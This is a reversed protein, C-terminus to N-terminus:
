AKEADDETPVLRMRRAREVADARSVVKLKRYIRKLHFKVTNETIFLQEAIKSLTHGTTLAELTRLEAKTLPEFPETRLTAPLADVEAVLDIAGAERAARALAGLVSWPVTGLLLRLGLVRMRAGAEAFREVAADPDGPNWLAAAAVLQQEIHQRPTLGLGAAQEVQQLGAEADGRYLALLASAIAADPHTQPLAALLRNAEAYNGLRAHLRAAHASFTCRMTFTSPLGGHVEARRRDLLELAAHAGDRLERAQAEAIVLLPWHELRPLVGRGMEFEALAAEADGREIAVLGEALAKNFGSFQPAEIGRGEALSRMRALHREATPLDGAVAATAALGNWGRIEELRDEFREAVEIARRYNREGLELDGAVLGTFGLASFLLPFTFRYHAMRSEPIREARAEADRSIRLAESGDGRMREATLLLGVAALNQEYNGDRLESRIASRLWQHLQEMRQNSMELGPEDAHLVAGILVPYRRLERDPIQNLRRQVGTGPRLVELFYRALLRSVGEYEEADLLQLAATAPDDRGLDAAHRLRIERADDGFEQLALSALPGALGEHCRYRTTHTWFTEQLLGQECLERATAEVSELSEDILEALMELSVGPCLVAGLLARRAGPIAMEAFHQRAFIALTRRSDGPSVGDSFQQLMTRMMIPWGHTRRHLQSVYESDGVGYLTALELSEEETLSLEEGTLVTVGVRSSVLPGDLAAFRRGLVLLHLLESRELLRALATDLEGSTLQQYDDLVLVTPRTLGLLIRDIDDRAQLLDRRRGNGGLAEHIRHWVSRADSEADLSRVWRVDIEPWDRVNETWHVAAVTKGFGAPARLLTVPSLDLLSGAIRESIRDRRLASFRLAPTEM